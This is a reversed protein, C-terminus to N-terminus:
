DISQEDITQTKPAFDEDLRTLFIYIIWHDVNLEFWVKVIGRLVKTKNRIQKITANLM